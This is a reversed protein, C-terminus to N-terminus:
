QEYIGVCAANQWEAYLNNEDLWKELRPDIWPYNGRYEGYYDVVQMGDAAPSESTVLPRGGDEKCQLFAVPYKQNEAGFMKNIRKVITENRMTM